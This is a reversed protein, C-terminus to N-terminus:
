AARREDPAVDRLAVLAVDDAQVADGRYEALSRWIEDCFAQASAARSAACAADQLREMGYDVSAADMIDTAGDTYLLLTDCPSLQIVQEDIAVSPFLGLPAGIGQEALSVDCGPGGTARGTQARTGRGAALLPLEHGARAYAFTRTDADLIGYLLTVFMGEENMDLLLENVRELARRPPVPTRDSRRSTNRTAEARLLSRTLAMFIAAPVGKGSVDGVAIGLRRKGLPIFDYLDGGVTRAPMMVAGFDYGALTPLGTPLISMQIRQATRLEQELKEKEIIQAQAAKLEAYAVSLDRNKRRLDAITADNTGRLQLTLVRVIEYALGPNNHLLQLFDRRSLSLLRVPTLAHATASRRGAPDLLSMEGFHDGPGCVALIREEESGLAKVIAVQGELVVFFRDGAEDELFVVGGADIRAEKLSEAMRGAEADSLSAFVPAQKVVQPPLPTM